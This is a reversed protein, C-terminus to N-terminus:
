ERREKRFLCFRVPAFLAYLAKGVAQDNFCESLKTMVVMFEFYLSVVLMFAIDRLVIIIKM